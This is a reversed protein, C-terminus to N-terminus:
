SSPLKKDFEDPMQSAHQRELEMTLQQLEEQLVKNRQLMQVYNLQLHRQYSIVRNKEELWQERDLTLQKRCISLDERLKELEDPASTVDPSHDSVLGDAIFYPIYKLLHDSTEIIINRVDSITRGIRGTAYKNSFLPGHGLAGGGGRFVGSFGAYRYDDNLMRENRVVYASIHVCANLLFNTKNKRKKENALKVRKEQKENKNWHWDNM